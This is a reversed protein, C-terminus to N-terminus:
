LSRVAGAVVAGALEVAVDLAGREIRVVLDVGGIVLPFVGPLQGPDVRQGEANQRRGVVLRAAAIRPRTLDAEGAAPRNRIMVSFTSGIPVLRSGILWWSSTRNSFVNESFLPWFSATRAFMKLMRFEVGNEVDVLSDPGFKPRGVEIISALSVSTPNM